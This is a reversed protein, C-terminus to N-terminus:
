AGAATLAQKLQPLSAEAAARGIEILERGRTFDEFGFASTDPAILFDSQSMHLSALSRQQVETVRILTSIYGPRRMEALATDPRNGGFQTGLKSGVDIALVFDVNRQRLVTAPVNLLVGGDVLAAGPRLIPKGFAPHNISEMVADIVDGSERVVADGTILDVGVTHLPTYLQAFDRSGMHRRLKRDALGFRFMCLLHWRNAKPLWRMWRPPTMEREILEAVEEPTFGAAYFAGFMAGASTGAIRDFHLGEAELAQLVGLHALGRAGGGGLALGIRVGQMRHVLRALDSRRFLADGAARWAVKIDPQAIPAEHKVVEPPSADLRHLWVVQITEILKPERQVLQTIRREADERASPECLWWVQECQRLMERNAIDRHVDLLVRRRSDVAHTLMAQVTAVDTQGAAAFGTSTQTAGRVDAPFARVSRDVGWADARDSVVVLRESPPLAALFQEALASGPGDDRVIGAVMLQRPRPKGSIERELWAGLSRCLNAAFGPLTAMLRQFDDRTLELLHSDIVATATASRPAAILMALEGFHNGRGLFNLLSEEGSDRLVTVRVRGGTILFMSEAPEGERCVVQGGKAAIPRMRALIEEVQADDLGIFLDSDRVRAHSQSMPSTRDINM